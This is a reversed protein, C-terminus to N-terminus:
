LETFFNNQNNITFINDLSRNGINRDTKNGFKLECKIFTKNGDNSLCEIVLDSGIRNNNSDQKLYRVTCSNNEQKQLLLNISDRLCSNIKDFFIKIKEKDVNRFSVPKETESISYFESILEDKENKNL